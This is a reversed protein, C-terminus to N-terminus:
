IVAKLVIDIAAQNARFEEMSKPSPYPLKVIQGRVLVEGPGKPTQTGTVYRVIEKTTTVPTKLAEKVTTVDKKYEEVSKGTIGAGLGALIKDWYLYVLAGGIIWPVFPAVAASVLPPNRRTRM